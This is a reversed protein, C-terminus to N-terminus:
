YLILSFDNPYQTERKMFKVPDIDLKEITFCCLNIDNTLFVYLISNYCQHYVECNIYMTCCFVIFSQTDKFYNGLMRAAIYCDDIM